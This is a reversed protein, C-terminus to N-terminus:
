TGAALVGDGPRGAVVDEDATLPAVAEDAGGAM